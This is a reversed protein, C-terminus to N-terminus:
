LSEWSGQFAWAATGYSLAALAIVAGFGWHVAIVTALVASVVSACGNVGWAWPLLEECSVAVRGLGAPLPIGMFFALPAILSLSFGVRFVESCELFARQALPLVGLYALSIGAIGAAVAGIRMRARVGTFRELLELFKVSSASGLGAFVLFGSLVVAMTHTPHGLFLTFRQIFAMEVFMFGCGICVFYVAMARKPGRKGSRFSRVHLPLLILAFGAVLAQVLTLVLVPYAWEMLPLGGEERLKLIEPLSKWKFFRFFYPCDDTAPEIFFKYADMAARSKEGILAQLVGYPSPGSVVNYRDAETPPMGPYYDLDFSRARCFEQIRAVQDPTFVGNRALLTVTKWGRIMVLRGGPAAIGSNEMATRATAFLKLSDRPPVKVWLNVALIGGPALRGLYEQFAEVTYSYTAALAHGGASSATFSDPISMQVLDYRDRDMTVFARPEALRVRVGERGYLHGSFNGYTNEVLEVMNRDPEVATVGSAGHYQALLVDMGGGAGLVLVRPRELLRYPAAATLYDLFSLQDPTADGLTIPSMADGDIFVGLQIPPERRCNLSIGPAHRFPIVPSSVVSLFGLPSSHEAILQAGPLRLAASLSKYESIRLSLWSTPWLLPAAASLALLGFGTLRIRSSRLDFLVLGSAALGLSSLVVLCTSPHAVFLLGMVGAAGFGAGLLDWWYVTHVREKFKLFAVAMCNAGALFPLTLLLYVTALYFTQRIDWFIELPNLPVRQAASFCTVVGAGFLLANGCFSWPYWRLFAERLISVCTGSAGFGLLALSIIMYAFHPWQIISLLRVLLIEYGLLAASLLFVAGLAAM